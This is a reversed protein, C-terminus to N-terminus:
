GRLRGVLTAERIPCGPGDREIAETTRTDPQITVGVQRNGCQSCRLRQGLEGLTAEGSGMIQIAARIGIPAVHGCGASLWVADASLLYCRLRVTGDPGTADPAAEPEPKLTAAQYTDCAVAFRVRSPFVVGTASPGAAIVMVWKMSIPRGAWIKRVTRWNSVALKVGLTVPM